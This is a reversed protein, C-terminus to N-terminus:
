YFTIRPLATRIFSVGTKEKDPLADIRATGAIVIAAQTFDEIAVDELVLGVANAVTVNSGSLAENIVVYSNGSKVVITGAPIIGDQFRATAVTGDIVIGGPFAATVEDFVVKQRGGTGSKSINDM